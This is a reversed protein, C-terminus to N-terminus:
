CAPNTGGTSLCNSTPQNIHSIAVGLSISAVLTVGLVVCVVIAITVAANRTQRAYKEMATEVPRPTTTTTTM